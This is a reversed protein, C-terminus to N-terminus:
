GQGIQHIVDGTKKGERSEWVKRDNARSGRFDTLCVLWSKSALYVRLTKNACVPSSLDNDGSRVGHINWAMGELALGAADQM